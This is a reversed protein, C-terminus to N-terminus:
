HYKFTDDDENELEDDNLDNENETKQEKKEEKVQMNIISKSFSKMFLKTNKSQQLNELCTHLNNKHKNRISNNGIGMGKELKRNNIRSNIIRSSSEM